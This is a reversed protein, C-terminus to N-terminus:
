KEEDHKEKNNPDIFEISRIEGACILVSDNGRDTWPKDSEKLDYMKEIYIDRESRDSSIFSGDACWGAYQTRDKLTVLVFSGRTMRGFKWDWATSTVHVPNIKLGRLLKYGWEKQASIGWISGILVPFVLLVSFWLFSGLVLSKETTLIIYVLWSSIAYNVASYCLIKLLFDHGNTERSIIFQKRLGLIIYGPVFFTILLFVTDINTISGM